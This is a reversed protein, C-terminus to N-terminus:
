SIPQGAKNGPPLMRPRPHIPLPISSRPWCRHAGALAPLILFGNFNQYLLWHVSCLETPGAPIPQQRHQYVGAIANLTTLINPLSANLADASVFSLAGGFDAVQTGINQLILEVQEPKLTEFVRQWVDFGIMRLSNIDPVMTAFPSDPMWINRVWLWSDFTPKSGSLYEFVHRVTQENAIVRMAGFMAYLVPLTLLMPLCGAMPNYKERKM